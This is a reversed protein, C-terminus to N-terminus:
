IWIIYYYILCHILLIQWVNILDYIAPYSTSLFNHEHLILNQLREKNKLSSIVWSFTVKLSLKVTEAIGLWGNTKTGSNDSPLNSFSVMIKGLMARKTLEMKNFSLFKGWSKFQSIKQDTINQRFHLIIPISTHEIVQSNISLTVYRISIFSDHVFM